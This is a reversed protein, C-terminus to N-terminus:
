VYAILRGCTIVGTWLTLSLVGALKAELPSGVGQDWLHISRYTWRHFAAANLAAAAILVLKLRFAPNAAIQTADTMFLLLGTAAAVLIGMRAWPLLHRDLATVPVSRSLGLLRVDWMAAAGVLTVFALIHTTEVAPYLWASERIAVALVSHELWSLVDGM